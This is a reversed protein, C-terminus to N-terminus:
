MVTLNESSATKSTTKSKIEFTNLNRTTAATNTYISNNYITNNGTGVTVNTNTNANRDNGTETGAYNLFVDNFSENEM